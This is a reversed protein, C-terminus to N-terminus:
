APNRSSTDVTMLGACCASFAGCRWWLPAVRTRSPRWPSIQKSNTAASLREAAEAQLVMAVVSHAVVEHLERAIRMRESAVALRGARRTGGGVPDVKRRPRERAHTPCARGAIWVGVGTLEAPVLNSTGAHQVTVVGIAFVIWIMLGAIARDRKEWAAVAYTPFVVCYLDALSASSTSALGWGLAIAAVGVVILFVLPVRRRWAAALAMVAAALVSIVLLGRRHGGMFVEIELTM